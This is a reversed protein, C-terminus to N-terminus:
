SNTPLSCTEQGSSGPREHLIQIFFITDIAKSIAPAASSAPQGFFFLTDSGGVAPDWTEPVEPSPADVDALARPPSAALWPPSIVPAFPTPGRARFTM